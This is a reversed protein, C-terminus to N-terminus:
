LHKPLAVTFCSILFLERFESCNRMTRKLPCLGCDFIKHLRVVAEVRQREGIEQLM